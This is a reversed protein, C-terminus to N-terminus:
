KLSSIFGNLNNAILYLNSRDDDGSQGYDVECEHNWFYIKNDITDMCILNGGPDNAIPFFTSPMRKEDIKCIKFYDELSDFEGDYLALFWDVSSETVAGNEEFSFVNPDCRGGNFKLLHNKYEEPFKFNLNSELEQIQSETIEEETELFNTM